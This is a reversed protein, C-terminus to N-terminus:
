GTPANGKTRWNRKSKVDSVWKDAWEFLGKVARDTAKCFEDANANAESAPLSDVSFVKLMAVFRVRDDATYEISVEVDRVGCLKEVDSSSLVKLGGAKILEHKRRTKAM